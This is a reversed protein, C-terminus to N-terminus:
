SFAERLKGFVGVNNFQKQNNSMNELLRTNQTAASHWRDLEKELDSIRQQTMEKYLAHESKLSKHEIEMIQLQSQLETTGSHESTNPISTDVQEINKLEGYVRILESTDIMESDGERVCSLRGDEIHRYLTTRSIGALKAAEKKTIHAMDLTRRKKIIIVDFNLQYIIFVYCKQLLSCLPVANHLQSLKLIFVGQFM